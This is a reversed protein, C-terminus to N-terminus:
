SESSSPLCLDFATDCYLWFVAEIFFTQRLLESEGIQYSYKTFKNMFFGLSIAANSFHFFLLYLLFAFSNIWLIEAHTLLHFVDCGSNILFVNVKFINSISVVESFGTGKTSMGLVKCQWQRSDDKSSRFYM